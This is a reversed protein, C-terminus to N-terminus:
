FDGPRGHPQEQLFRGLAQHRAYSARLADPLNVPGPAAALCDPCWLRLGCGSVGCRIVTRPAPPLYPLIADTVRNLEALEAATGTWTLEEECTLRASPHQPCCRLQVALAEARQKLTSLTSRPHAM